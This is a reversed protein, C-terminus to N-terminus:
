AMISVKPATQNPSKVSSWSTSALPLGKTSPAIYMFVPVTGGVM